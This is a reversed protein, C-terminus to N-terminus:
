RSCRCRGSLLPALGRSSHSLGSARLVFRAVYANIGGDWQIPDGEIGFAAKLKNSLEQKQKKIRTTASLDRWALQGGALAMQRLLPWQLTPRGNKRNKMGLHESEFRRTEGRFRINVVELEVFDFALEEWRADPPLVWARQPGPTVSQCVPAFVEQPAHQGVLTGHDDAGLADCLPVHMGGASRIKARAEAGVFRDTPTAVAFPADMAHVLFAIAQAAQDPTRAWLLLVPVGQGATVQHMGLELIDPKLIWSAAPRLGLPKALAQALKGVDLELVAIDELTLSITDCNRPDDGCVAVIRSDDHRIVRRPCDSGGPSPCWVREVLAGTQRLLPEAVPWEDGLLRRWELREAAARPLTELARWLRRLKRM